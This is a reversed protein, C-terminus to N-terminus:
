LAILSIIGLTHSPAAFHTLHTHTHIYTHSLFCRPQHPPLRSPSDGSSRGTNVSTVDRNDNNYNNHLAGGKGRPKLIFYYKNKKEKKRKRIHKTKMYKINNCLKYQTRTRKGRAMQMLLRRHM